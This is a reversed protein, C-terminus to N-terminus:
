CNVFKDYFNSVATDDLFPISSVRIRVRIKLASQYSLDSHYQRVTCQKCIFRARYFFAVLRAAFHTCAISKDDTLDHSICDILSNDDAAPSHAPLPQANIVCSALQSSAFRRNKGEKVRVSL